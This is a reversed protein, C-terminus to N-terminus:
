ALQLTFAGQLTITAAFEVYEISASFEGTFVSKNLVGTARTRVAVNINSPLAVESWNMLNLVVMGKPLISKTQSEFVTPASPDISVIDSASILRIQDLGLQVNLDQLSQIPVLTWLHASLTGDTQREVSGDTVSMIMQELAPVPVSLKTYKVHGSTIRVISRLGPGIPKGTDVDQTRHDRLVSTPSLLNAITTLNESLEEYTCEFIAESEAGKNTQFLKFRRGNTVVFYVARVEPHNAYSWAQEEVLKDLTEGPAKAEIVWKVKGGAECIYDAKGRLYPDSAKRRGLSLQPYSLHQERIVNDLTGSRYGLHRLLPAVIEERVDTEGLAEFDYAPFEMNKEGLSTALIKKVDARRTSSVTASGM